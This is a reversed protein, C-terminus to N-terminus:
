RTRTVGSESRGAGVYAGEPPRRRCRSLSNRVGSGFGRGLRKSALNVVVRHASLRGNSFLECLWQAAFRVTVDNVFLGQSALSMRVSCSPQQDDPTTADLLEPFLETVCPVKSFM